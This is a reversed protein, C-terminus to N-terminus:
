QFMWVGASEQRGLEAGYWAAPAAAAPKVEVAGLVGYNSGSATADLAYAGAGTCVRYDGCGVVDTGTDAGSAQEYIETVGSGPTWNLTGNRIGAGGILWADAVSTTLGVSFASKNGSDTGTTGVPSTQDVGALSIAALSWGLIASTSPTVSVQYSSGAPPNVLAWVETRVNRSTGVHEAAAQQTLAAGNYTVSSVSWSTAANRMGTYVVVLLRQVGGCTHNVTHPGSGSGTTKSHGDLSIAM